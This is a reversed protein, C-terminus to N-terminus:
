LLTEKVQEKPIVCLVFDWTVFIYPLSIFSCNLQIKDSKSNIFDNYISSPMPFPEVYCSNQWTVLMRSFYRCFLKIKQLTTLQLDKVKLFVVTTTWLNQGVTCFLSAASCRNASICTKAPSNKIATKWCLLCCFM